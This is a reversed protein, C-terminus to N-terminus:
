QNIMTILKSEKEKMKRIQLSTGLKTTDEM